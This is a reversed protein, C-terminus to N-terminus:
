IKEEKNETDIKKDPLEMKVCTYILQGFNFVNVILYGLLIIFYISLFFIFTIIVSNIMKTDSPVIKLNLLHWILFSSLLTIVQVVISSAFTRSTYQFIDTNHKTEYDSLIKM